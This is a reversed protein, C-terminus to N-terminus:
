KGEIFQVAKDLQTDHGQQLSSVDFPVAEDPKVVDVTSTPDNPDSIPRYTAINIISNDPLTLPSSSSTCGFTDTGFVRAVKQSQLIFAFIESEGATQGDILVALPQTVPKVAGTSPMSVVSNLDQTPDPTATPTGNGASKNDQTKLNVLSQGSVFRSVYEQVTRISGVSNGRVDLVIGKVNKSTFDTLIQDLQQLAGTLTTQGEIPFANFRIYGTDNNIIRNEFDLTTVQGLVVTINTSSNARTVKLSVQSGAKPTQGGRLLGIATNFDKGDLSQGNVETITDGAQLGSKDAGSQPLVHTVVIGNTAPLGIIGLGAQSDLGRRRLSFDNAITPPYFATHCEQLGNAAAGIAGYALKDESIQNKYRDLTLLYAQSFLAADQTRDGVFNPIPVQPDAVGAQKLTDVIGHLGVEYLDASNVTHYFGDFIDDYANKVVDQMTSSIASSVPPLTPRPTASPFPPIPTPTSFVLSATTAVATSGVTASVTTPLPTATPYGNYVDCASLVLSGLVLLGAIKFTSGRARFSSGSGASKFNSM